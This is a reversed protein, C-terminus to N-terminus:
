EDWNHFVEQVDDDEELLSLIRGINNLDEDKTLTVYTQPLVTIEANAMEIGEKELSLTFSYWCKQIIQLARNQRM